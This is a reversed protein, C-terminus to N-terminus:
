PGLALASALHIADLSRLSSPELRGALSAIEGDLEIFELAQLLASAQGLSDPSHRRVARTLEVELIRHSVRTGQGALFEALPQSEPEAVVLKVAASADLYVRGSVV